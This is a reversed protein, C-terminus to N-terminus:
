LGKFTRACLALFKGKRVLESFDHLTWFLNLEVSGGEPFYGGGLLPVRVRSCNAFRETYKEGDPIADPFGRYSRWFRAIGTSSNQHVALVYDM